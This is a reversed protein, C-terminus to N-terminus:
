SRSFPKKKIALGLILRAGGAGRGFVYGLAVVRTSFNNRNLTHRIGVEDAWLKYQAYLDASSVSYSPDFECEDAIFQAAQDAELKWKNMIATSSAPITFSKNLIIQKLGDLAMNLIGPLEKRLKEALDVDQNEDVFKNNFRLAIARRFLADSFDRTHPLHNTGFWHKAYPVFDFPDKHKHEATTM